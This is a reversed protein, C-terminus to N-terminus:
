ASIGETAALSRPPLGFGIRASAIRRQAHPPQSPTSDAPMNRRGCNLFAATLLVREPFLSWLRHCDPIRFGIQGTSCAVRTRRSVPFGAPFRSSWRGLSFVLYSGIACLVTLSRHFAGRHPSHFLVQFRPSVLPRLRGEPPHRRAKQLILRRTVTRLLTLRHCDRLRLSVSDSCPSTTYNRATSGFGLSRDM